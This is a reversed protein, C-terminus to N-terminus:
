IGIELRIKNDNLSYSPCYDSFHDYSLWLVRVATNMMKVSPPLTIDMELLPFTIETHSRQRCFM